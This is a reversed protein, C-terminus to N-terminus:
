EGSGRLEELAARLDEQDAETYHETFGINDLFAVLGPRDAGGFLTKHTESLAALDVAAYPSSAEWELEYQLFLLQWTLLVNKYHHANEEVDEEPTTPTTCQPDLSIEWNLINVMEALMGFYTDRLTEVDGFGIGPYSQVMKNAWQPTVKKQGEAEANSLVDRWLKILAHYTPPEADLQESFQAVAAEDEPSLEITEIFEPQETM